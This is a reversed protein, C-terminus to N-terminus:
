LGGGAGPRDVRLTGQITSITDLALNDAAGVERYIDSGPVGEILVVSVFSFVRERESRPFFVLERNTEIEMSVDFTESEDPQANEFLVDPDIWYVVSAAAVSVPFEGDIATKTNELRTTSNHAIVINAPPPSTVDRQVLVAKNFPITSNSLQIKFTGVLSSFGFGEPRGTRM